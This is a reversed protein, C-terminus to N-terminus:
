SVWAVQAGSDNYKVAQLGITVSVASAMPTSNREMIVSWNSFFDGFFIFFYFFLIKKRM